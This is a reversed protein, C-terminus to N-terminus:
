KICILEDIEDFAGDEYLMVAGLRTACNYHHTRDRVVLLGEPIKGREDEPTPDFMYWKDNVWVEYYLGHSDHSKFSLDRSELYKEINHELRHRNSEFVLSVIPHTEDSM